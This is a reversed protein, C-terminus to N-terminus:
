CGELAYFHRVANHVHNFRMGTKFAKKLWSTYGYQPVKNNTFKKTKTGYKRFKYVIFGKKGNEEIEYIIAKVGRKFYKFKMENRKFEEPVTLIGFEEQNEM